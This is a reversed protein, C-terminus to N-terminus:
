INNKIIKKTLYIKIYGRIINNAMTMLEIRERKNKKKNGLKRARNTEVDMKHHTTKKEKERERGKYSFLDLDIPHKIPRFNFLIKTSYSSNSISINPFYKLDKEGNSM